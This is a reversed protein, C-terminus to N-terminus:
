IVDTRGGGDADTRGIELEFERLFGGGDTQETIPGRGDTQPRRDSGGALRGSGFPFARQRGSLRRSRLGAARSATRAAGAAARRQARHESTVHQRAARRHDRERARHGRQEGRVGDGRAAALQARVRAARAHRSHSAHQARSSRLEDLPVAATSSCASSTQTTSLFAATEFHHRTSGASEVATRHRAFSPAPM